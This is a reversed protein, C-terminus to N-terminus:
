LPVCHSFFVDDGQRVCVEPLFGGADVDDGIVRPSEDVVHDASTEVPLVGPWVFDAGREGSDLDVTEVADDDDAFIEVVFVRTFKGSEYVGFDDFKFAFFEGVEFAAETDVADIAAYRAPGFNADFGAIDVAVFDAELGLAEQRADDLVLDIVCIAQEKDVVEAVLRVAEISEIGLTLENWEIIVRM